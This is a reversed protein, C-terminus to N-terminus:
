LIVELLSDYAKLNTSQVSVLPLLNPKKPSDAVIAPQTYKLLYGIEKKLLESPKENTTGHIRNNAMILWSNIRNNLLTPTVVLNTDKLKILLPGYFNAKLYSNFREVKGKTKARYPRCLRIKFGYKKAFDSLANNYKHEGKGYQDRKIVVSKMNDYLITKAVGGFYLFAKEHCYILTDDEMNDTFYVFTCRSYGLTMVFAYIPNKGSRITTWDVQAQEGPDTEFRVVPDKELQFRDLERYEKTLFNQLISRKGKYGLEIIDSLIVSYPIRRKSKNIFERIYPKYADLLSEKNRGRVMGQFEPARLKRTVTKRDIKLMQAIKRISYGKAFLDHIVIYESKSVM